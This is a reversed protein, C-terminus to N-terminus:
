APEIRKRMYKKQTSLGHKMSEAVDLKEKTSLTNDLAPAAMKRFLTAGGKFGLNRNMASIYASQKGDGFIAQGNKLAKTKIYDRVLASLRPTLLQDVTEFHNNNGTKNINKIIARVRGAPPVILRNPENNWEPSSDTIKLKGFDDRLPLEHYLAATLYQRSQSGFKAHSARLYEIWYPVEETKQREETQKMSEEKLLKFHKQIVRFPKEPVGVEMNTAIWLFTQAVMKRSNLGYLQGNKQKMLDIKAPLKTTYLKLIGKALGMERDISKITEIYPTMNGPKAELMEILRDANLIPKRGKPAPAPDPLPAPKPPSALFDEVLLPAPEPAPALVPAPEPAPEPAPQTPAPIELPPLGKQARYRARRKENHTARNADMYKQQRARNRERLEEVTLSPNLKAM